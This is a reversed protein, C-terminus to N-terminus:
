SQISCTYLKANKSFLISSVNDPSDHFEQQLLPAHSADSVFLACALGRTVDRRAFSPALSMIYEADRPKVAVQQQHRCNKM